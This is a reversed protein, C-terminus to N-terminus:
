MVYSVELGVSGTGTTVDTTKVTLCIDLMTGKAPETMGIASWLPSDQLITTNTTSENLVDTRVVASACDVVSAFFISSVAAGGDANTRYVGIDFKGATQAASAFIVDTVKCHAPVEVMRIVSTTTLSATVSALYSKVTKKHAAGGSGPDNHVSPSAERNTIAVSKLTLDIAM